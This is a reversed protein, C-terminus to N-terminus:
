SRVTQWLNRFFDAMKIFLNDPVVKGGGIQYSTGTVGTVTINKDTLSALNDGTMMSTSADLNINGSGNKISVAKGTTQLKGAGQNSMVVVTTCNGDAMTIPDGSFGAETNVVLRDITVEAGHCIVTQVGDVKSNGSTYYWLQTAFTDGVKATM